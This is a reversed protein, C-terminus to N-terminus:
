WRFALGGRVMRRARASALQVGGDDAGLVQNLLNRVDVLAEWRVPLGFSPLEQTVYVNINPDYISMRGAFPDIAFVVASPSLRIVTSVRTGTQETFDLDLKATAVQFFGGRFLEAPTVQSVPADSLRSGRGFSYGASATVHGNIRRNLMMRVGRAAGNMAAVQQLTAQTEPSAELPLALVGVGHGSILDYFVSAEISTDGAEGFSREVGMEFRQSRDLIPVGSGAIEAPASEFSAQINESSFGELSNMRASAGPTVAANLRLRASPSYQIALRPLVSDRDNISGIFRSYDFGYILLLPRFVQWSDTASVSLQDLLIRDPSAQDLRHSAGRMGSLGVQGYAIMATIQHAAAPRVTAVAALRQPALNGVGRQGIFAMEFNGGMSGSVAFNTGFFDPAPLGAPASSTVAVFQAMGHVSHPTPLLSKPAEDNSPDVIEEKRTEDFKTVPPPVSLSIWRYNDSDGRKQILTNDKRLEFDHSKKESRNLILRTSRPIFGEALARVRYVGPLVGALFRGQGDTRASKIEKGGPRPEHVAVTAGTLPIGRDDRVTGTVFALAPSAEVALGGSTSTNFSSPALAGLLCGAILVNIARKM